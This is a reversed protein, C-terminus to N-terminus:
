KLKGNRVGIEEATIVVSIVIDCAVVVLVLMVVVVVDARQLGAVLKLCSTVEGLAKAAFSWLQQWGDPIWYGLLTDRLAPLAMIYEGHAGMAAFSCHFVMRTRAEFAMGPLSRTRQHIKSNPTLNQCKSLVTMPFLVSPYILILHCM